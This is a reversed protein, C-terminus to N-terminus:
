HNNASFISNLYKVVKIYKKGAFRKPQSEVYAKSEPTLNNFSAERNFHNKRRNHPARLM